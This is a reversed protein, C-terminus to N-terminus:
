LKRSAQGRQSIWLNDVQSWDTPTREVPTEDLWRHNKPLIVRLVAFVVGLLPDILPTTFRYMLFRPSFWRSLAVTKGVVADVTDILTTLLHRTLTM